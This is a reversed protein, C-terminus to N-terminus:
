KNNRLYELITEFAKDFKSELKDVRIVIREEAGNLNDATTKHLIGCTEKRVFKGDIDEKVEDLRGYVRGIKDNFYKYISLSVLANTGVIGLVAGIESWIM